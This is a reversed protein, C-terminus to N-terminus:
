LMKESKYSLLYKRILDLALQSLREKFQIRDVPFPLPIQKIATTEKGASFGIYALGVPKAPTAGGPGAIGTTSIGIGTGAIERINRAMAKAVEESVAGHTAILEEPVGLMKIKSTNSYTTVGQMFYGSSGPVNTLRHAIIGGTCSEAVAVTLKTQFFLEAVVNELTDHDFGYIAHKFERGICECLKREADKLLAEAEASELGFSTVRIDVGRTLQPLFAIDLNQRVQEIVDKIKEFLTSEPVGTTRLTRYKLVKTNGLNKVFPVTYAETMWEMEKPVGQLCFFTTRGKTFRLGPATGRQNSLYEASQPVMAQIRNTESMVRGVKKYINEIEQLAAPDLQLETGLFKAAGDRTVDDHTPGLGGCSIVLESERSAEEFTKAILDIRDGVKTIRRVSIGFEALRKGIYASNSDLTQGLLIEDGIIIIEATM